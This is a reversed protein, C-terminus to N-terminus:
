TLQLLTKEINKRYSFFKQEKNNQTFLFKELFFGSLKLGENLCSSHYKAEENVLFQPLRLLKNEYPLGIELSVARASKPSVFALNSTANTVVCSRLDIGYGLTELIKLELRIYDSLIESQSTEDLTIKQLFDYLKEFLEQQNERELFNNNIIEFLSNACSVRFSDFIIRSLYSRLLDVYYLQGLNDEIRSRYEFSVLNGVQFIVKDKSSKASKIFSTFVGYNQSFIKIMLSNEGYKKIGIIVGRDSFKM